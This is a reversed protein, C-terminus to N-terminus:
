SWPQGGGRRREWRDQRRRTEREKRDAQRQRDAQTYGHPDGSAMAMITRGILVAGWPGSVWIPWPYAQAGTAIWIVWCVLSATLWSGWTAILWGPVGRGTSATAATSQTAASRDAMSTSLQSQAGPVTPPLDGLVGDLEGYTKAAYTQQLREDYEALNLRGENLAAQLREAVFQRDADAARLEERREAV